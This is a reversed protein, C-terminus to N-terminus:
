FSSVLKSITNRGYSFCAILIESSNVHECHAFQTIERKEGKNEWYNIVEVEFSKRTPM